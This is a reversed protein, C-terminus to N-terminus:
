AVESLTWYVQITRMTEVFNQYGVPKIMYGAASLDFSALRDEDHRSTTLVVVPIRRLLSDQKIIRLFEIGNMKPMNIDLLIVGPLDSTHSRLYELGEEGDGCVDLPNKINLDRLARRVTMMEVLDDELLLIRMTSNM